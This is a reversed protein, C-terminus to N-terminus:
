TNGKNIRRSFGLEIAARHGCPRLKSCFPSKESCISTAYVCRKAFRCGIGPNILYNRRRFKIREM